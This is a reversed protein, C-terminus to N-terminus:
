FLRGQADHICRPSFWIRERNANVTGNSGKTAYGGGTKWEHCEWGPLEHEGEYGCLAIRLLPDAENERCWEAVAKSCPMEVAYCENDRGVDHSYPPDLFVGTMGLTTTPSPGCVRTWDGCCVRVRRLRKALREFWELLPVNKAVGQGADSLHPLQRKVGRVPGLHPRQRSIGGPEGKVLKGDVSRWPGNGDCWGGGIWSCIGWVWWGAIQADYFEPNGELRAVLEARRPTMFAHRAHLDNENVPHDAHYAVSDPDATISRWFNAVFGDADNITEARHVRPAGFLVAGTGFFPEVYNDLRGFREWVVPAVRSKGGFWPFPAQLTEVQEEDM